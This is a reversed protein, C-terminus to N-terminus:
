KIPDQDEETVHVVIKYVESLNQHGKLFCKKKFFLMLHRILNKQPHETRLSQGDQTSVQESLLEVETYGSHL